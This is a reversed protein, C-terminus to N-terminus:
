NVLEMVAKHKRLKASLTQYDVDQMAVGGKAAVGAAQGIILGTRATM